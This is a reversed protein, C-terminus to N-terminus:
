VRMICIVTYGYHKSFKYIWREFHARTLEPYSDNSRGISMFEYLNMGAPNVAATSILAAGPAVMLAALPPAENMVLTMHLKSKRAEWQRTKYNVSGQLSCTASTNKSQDRRDFVEGTTPPCWQTTTAFKFEAAFRGSEQLGLTSILASPLLSLDFTM